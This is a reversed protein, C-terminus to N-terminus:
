ESRLKGALLERILERERSSFTKLLLLVSVYVVSALIIVLIIHFHSNILLVTLGMISAAAAPKRILKLYSFGPVLYPKLLRCYIVFIAAETIVASVAAGNYSYRSIAFYNLSFNLIVGFASIYLASKETGVALLTNIMVANMFSFLMAWGLIMLPRGSDLFRDGFLFVCIEGSVVMLGALIPIGIIFIYKFVYGFVKNFMESQSKDNHLRAMAPLFAATVAAPILHIAQIMKQAVGYIGTNYDGKIMNLLVIDISGYLFLLLSLLTFPSSKKLFHIIKRPDIKVTVPFFRRKLLYLSLIFAAAAMLLQSISFGILGTGLYLASLGLVLNGVRFAIRVYAEYEARQFARFYASFLTTFTILFLSASIIIITSSKLSPYGMIAIFGIMGASAIITLALKASFIHKIYEEASSHDRGIDRSVLRDFGFNPLQAWIVGITFAFSYIGINEPGLIQGAKIFLVAGFISTLVETLFNISTNRFLLAIM